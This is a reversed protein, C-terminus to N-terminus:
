LDLVLRSSSAWSVCPCMGKARQDDSLCVDRHDVTGDLVAVYCSGCEGRNCEHVAWAGAGLAAELISQGPEVRVSAGSRELRVEVPADDVRRAAGFSEMRVSAAPIGLARATERFAELMGRPGCAYFTSGTPAGSLVHRLNMPGSEDDVYTTVNRGLRDTPLLRDSSRVSYHVDYGAGQAQLELAMSFFPTIGIGGAVLVTHAAGARLPFGNFPGEAQLAAGPELVDHVHDSGGRSPRARQVCIEYRGTDAPSSTLSYRRELEGLRIAIHSGAGFPPLPRGDVAVLTVQVIDIAVSRKGLVVLNMSM